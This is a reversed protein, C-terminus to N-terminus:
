TSFMFLIKHIHNITCSFFIICTVQIFHDHMFNQSLTERFSRSPYLFLGQIPKPNFIHLSEDIPMSYTLLFYAQSNTFFKTNTSNAQSNTYFKTNQAAPKSNTSHAQSNTYFKQFPIQAKLHAKPLYIKLFHIEYVLRSHFICSDTSIPRTIFVQDHMVKSFSNQSHAPSSLTGVCRSSSSHM